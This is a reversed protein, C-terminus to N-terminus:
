LFSHPQGRGFIEVPDIGLGLRDDSRFDSRSTKFIIDAPHSHSGPVSRVMDHDDTRRALGMHVTENFSSGLSHAAYGNGTFLNAGLSFGQVQDFFFNSPGDIVMGVNGANRTRFHCHHKGFFADVAGVLIGLVIHKVPVDVHGTGKHIGTFGLFYHGPGINRLDVASVIGVGSGPLGPFDHRFEDNLM